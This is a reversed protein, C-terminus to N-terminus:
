PRFIYKLGRGASLDDFTEVAEALTREGSLLLSYDVQPNVLWERAQKVAQTGFHFPSLLSIQDYHLRHTDFASRTGGPCGGFLVVTGGRLSYDVSKEWVEVQGTCEIVVDFSGKASDLDDVRRIKAGFAEGIELRSANRGALTVNEIGLQKLAAVFLLGIAGPGIVLINLESSLEGGVGVTRNLEQIAQAVCAYPELLSAQEFSLSAPKEFVNLKAIRAPILLYEAFSGLVKTSMISECLNEQGKQCWRCQKCPASHVGMIPTGPEFNAGEGTSVVTGAYEHGFVGPMPIQPHGRRYAKLDTGCTTAAEVKILLEGPGPTPTAVTKLELCGPEQLILAQMVAPQTALPASPIQDIRAVAHTTVSTSYERAEPQTKEISVARGTPVRNEESTASRKKSLEERQEVVITPSDALEKTLNGM